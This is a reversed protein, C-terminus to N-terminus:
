HCASSSLRSKVQSIGLIKSTKLNGGPNRFISKKFTNERTFHLMVTIKNSRQFYVLVNTGPIGSINYKGEGFSAIFYRYLINKNTKHILKSINKDSIYILESVSILVSDICKRPM